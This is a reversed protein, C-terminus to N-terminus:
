VAHFHLVTASDDCVIDLNEAANPRDHELWIERPERVVHALEKVGSRLWIVLEDAGPEYEIGELDLGSAEPEGGDPLLVEITVPEHAHDRGFRQLIAPWAARRLCEASM